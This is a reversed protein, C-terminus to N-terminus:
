VPDFKAKAREDRARSRARNARSRSHCVRNLSLNSYSRLAWQFTKSTILVLLVVVLDTQSLVEQFGVGRAESQNM